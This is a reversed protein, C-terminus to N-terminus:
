KKSKKQKMENMRARFKDEAEKMKFIQRQSLFTAFKADYARDIDADKEKAATQLRSVAEYDAETPNKKHKLEREAKRVERFVQRKEKSMAAYVEAFQKTQDEKLEMEQALFKIKYELMDKWKSHSSRGKMKGGKERQPVQGAVSASSAVHLTESTQAMSPVGALVAMMIILLIQKM